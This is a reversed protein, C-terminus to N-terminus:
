EKGIKHFKMYMQRATEPSDVGEANKIPSFEDERKVRLITMEEVSEFADFIFAEFKYANPKESIIVEGNSNMYNAKKHAVHFKLDNKYMEEIVNINFLNSVIHAESFKLEGDETREETMEKPMESYEIVYPRGNKKCFVGVKEEPYGKVISKSAALNNQSITLGLLLEDVPKVLINDVGCIFLWKINKEKMDKLYGKDVMAKFIGGHGDAALKIRGEENLLIKGDESLMPLQGQIFFTINEKGYGFYNNDEFFEVTAKNNEESTMIYWPININFKNVYSMMTDTLIEFISKNIPEGLIFTGKPGTHGLRTGQGGAMTIVAYQGNQIAETGIKSYYEKEEETLKEKEIYPIAEIKENTKGEEMNRNRYLDTIFDFDISIIDDLLQEKKNDDLLDYCDLLQEQGYKKIKALALSYKEEM